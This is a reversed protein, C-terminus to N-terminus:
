NLLHLCTSVPENVCHVCAKSRQISLNSADGMSWDGERRELVTAIDGEALKGKAVKASVSPGLSWM